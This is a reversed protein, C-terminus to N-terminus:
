MQKWSEEKEFGITVPQIYHYIAHEGTGVQEIVMNAVLLDLVESLDEKNRGLRTALGKITEYTYPNEQFFLTCEVQLPNIHFSVM